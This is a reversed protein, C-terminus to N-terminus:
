IFEKTQFIVEICFVALIDSYPTGILTVWELLSSKWTGLAKPGKSAGDKAKVGDMLAKQASGRLTSETWLRQLLQGQSRM